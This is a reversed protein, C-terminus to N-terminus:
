LATGHSFREGGRETRNWISGRLREQAWNARPSEHELDGNEAAHKRGLSPIVDIAAYTSWELISM